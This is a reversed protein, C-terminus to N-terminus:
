RLVRLTSWAGTAGRLDVARVRWYYTGNAVNKTVTAYLNRTEITDPVETPPSTFDATSSIQFEYHDAGATARWGFSPMTDVVAGTAPTTLVTKAPKAQAIQPLALLAATAVALAVGRLRQNEM